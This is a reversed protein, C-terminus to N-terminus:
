RYLFWPAMQTADCGHHRVGVGLFECFESVQGV